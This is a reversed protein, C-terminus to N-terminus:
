AKNWLALEANRRTVLGPVETEKGNVKAHVWRVIQTPVQDKGHALMTGMSGEGLNYAFDVLADFQGQTFDNRGFVANIYNEICSVDHTLLNEAIDETIGDTYNEGARLAHGYGITPVGAVDLYTRLRLGESKRILSYCDESAFM